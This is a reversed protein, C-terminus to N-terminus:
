AADSHPRCNRNRVSRVIFFIFGAILLYPIVLLLGLSISFGNILKSAGAATSQNSAVERCMPCAYATGAGILLVFLLAVFAPPVPPSAKAAAGAADALVSPPSHGLTVPGANLLTNPKKM